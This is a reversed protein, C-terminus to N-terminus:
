FQGAMVICICFMGVAITTYLVRRLLTSIIGLALWM